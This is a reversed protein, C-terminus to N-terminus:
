AGCVRSCRGLVCGHGKGAGDPADHRSGPRRDMPGQSIASVGTRWFVPPDDGFIVNFDHFTEQENKVLPSQLM